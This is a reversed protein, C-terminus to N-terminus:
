SAAGGAETPRGAGVLAHEAPGAMGPAPASLMATAEVRACRRAWVITALLM